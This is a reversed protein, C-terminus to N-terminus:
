VSAAPLLEQGGAGGIRWWHAVLSSEQREPSPLFISKPELTYIYSMM